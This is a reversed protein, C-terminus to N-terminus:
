DGPQWLIDRLTPVPSLSHTRERHELLLNSLWTDNSDMHLHKKPRASLLFRRGGEGIERSFCANCVSEAPSNPPPPCNKIKKKLCPRIYVLTTEFKIHLQPYDQM